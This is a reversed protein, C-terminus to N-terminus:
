IREIGFGYTRTLYLKEKSWTGHCILSKFLPSVLNEARWAKRQPKWHLSSFVLAWVNKESGRNDITHLPTILRWGATNWEPGIPQSGFTYDVYLELMSPNKPLIILYRSKMVLRRTKTLIMIMILIWMIWLFRVVICEFPDVILTGKFGWHVWRDM